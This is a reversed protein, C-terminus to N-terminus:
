DERSNLASDLYSPGLRQLHRSVGSISTLHITGSHVLDGKATTFSNFRICSM